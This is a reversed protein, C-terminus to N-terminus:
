FIEACDGFFYYSCVIHLTVKGMPALRFLGQLHFRFAGACKIFIRQHGTFGYKLFCAMCRKVADAM